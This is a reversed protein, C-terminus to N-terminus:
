CCAKRRGETQDRPGENKEYGAFGNLAMIKKGHMSPLSTFCL